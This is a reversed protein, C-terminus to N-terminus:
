ARAGAPAITLTVEGNAAGQWSLTMGLRAALAASVRFIADAQAPTAALVEVLEPDPLHRVTATPPDQAFSAKVIDAGFARLNTLTADLVEAPEWVRDTERARAFVAALADPWEDGTMVSAVALMLSQANLQCQELLEETTYDAAGHLIEFDPGGSEM